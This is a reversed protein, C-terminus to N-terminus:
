LYLSVKDLIYVAGDLVSLSLEAIHKKQYRKELKNQFVDSFGFTTADVGM